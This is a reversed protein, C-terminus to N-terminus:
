ETILAETSARPGPDGAGHAVNDNISSHPADTTTRKNPDIQGTWLEKLEKRCAGVTICAILVSPALYLLAPQGSKMLLLAVFTILLGIAYAISTAVFYIRYKTKALIDFNHCFAVFLGPLLIDGFGLLSYPQECISMATKILKPVKIVMPLQEVSGRGTAVEVMVSKGQASFFPTIFVFFIDYVLLAMLLITSIKLNPLKFMKLLSVCFCVGMIDQLIWGYMSNRIIIWFISLGICLALLIMNCVDPQTKFYPLNNEPLKCDGCNFLSKVGLLCDYTGQVAAISFIGIVVYILYKYFFYLLLLVVCIMMIFVLVMSTSLPPFAYIDEKNEGDGAADAGLNKEKTKLSAGSWYAGTVVTLVAIVWLVVLNPDFLPDHPHYLQAYEPTGMTSVVHDWAHTSIKGVTLHVQEHQKPTGAPFDVRNPKQSVLIVQKANAQYASQLKEFLTCNKHLNSVFTSSNYIEKGYHPGCSNNHAMAMYIPYKPTYKLDFSISSYHPNFIACIDASKDGAELHLIAFPFNQSSHDHGHSSIISLSLIIYVLTRPFLQRSGM